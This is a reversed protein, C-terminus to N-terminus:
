PLLEVERCPVRSINAQLGCHKCPESKLAFGKYKRTIECITGIPITMWGNRLKTLTRVKRGKLINESMKRYTKIDM